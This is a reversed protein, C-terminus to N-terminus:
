IVCLSSSAHTLEKKVGKNGSFIGDFQTRNYVCTLHPPRTNDVKVGILTGKSKDPGQHQVETEDTIVTRWEWEPRKFFEAVAAEEGVSRRSAVELNRPPSEMMAQTALEVEGM